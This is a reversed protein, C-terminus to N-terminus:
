GPGDQDAPCNRCPHQSPLVQCRRTRILPRDFARAAVGTLRQPCRRGPLPTGPFRDGPQIGAPHGSPTEKAAPPPLRPRGSSTAPSPTTAPTGTGPPPPPRPTSSSRAKAAHYRHPHGPRPLRAHHRARRRHRRRRAAAAHDERARAARTGAAEAIYALTGAPLPQSDALRPARRRHGPSVLLRRPQRGPGADGRTETRCPRPPRRTGLIEAIPGPSAAKAAAPPGHGRTPPAPRPAPPAPPARPPPPSAPPPAPAVITDRGVAPVALGETKMAGIVKSATQMSIHWRAMMQRQSPLRDGRRARRRRDPGRSSGSRGAVASRGTWSPVGHSM